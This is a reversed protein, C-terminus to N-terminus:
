IFLYRYIRFKLRKNYALGKRKSFLPSSITQDKSFDSFVYHRSSQSSPIGPTGTTEKYSCRQTALNGVSLRQFCRLPFRGGLYSKTGVYTPSFGKYVVLNIPPCHLYRLTNLKDTSITKSYILILKEKSKSSGIFPEKFYKYISILFKRTIQALRCWRKGNRVSFHFTEAGVISLMPKPCYTM